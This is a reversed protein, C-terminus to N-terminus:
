VYDVGLQLSVQGDNGGMTPNDLNNADQLMEDIASQNRQAQSPRENNNQNGANNAEIIEDNWKEQNLYTSPHALYKKDTFQYEKEVQNSLIEILRDKDLHLKKSEWTKLAPAKSKKLPYIQYWQDFGDALDTKEKNSGKLDKSEKETSVLPRYGVHPFAVHPIDVQPKEKLQNEVQPKEYITWETEGTKIRTWSAYGCSQLEKLYRKIKAHRATKQSALHEISVNWTSPKSLLYTLLGLAGFDLTKDNIVTNDIVTYRSRKAIKIIAM